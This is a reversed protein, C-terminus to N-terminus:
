MESLKWLFQTYRGNKKEYDAQLSKEEKYTM